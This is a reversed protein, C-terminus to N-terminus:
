GTTECACPTSIRQSTEVASVQAPPAPPPGDNTGRVTTCGAAALVLAILPVLSVRM